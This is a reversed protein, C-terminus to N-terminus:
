QIPSSSSGSLRSWDPNLPSNPIPLNGWSLSRPDRLRWVEAHGDAFSLAYGKSHRSAPADLLGRTGKMDMAFWGDNISKEHEDIFVFASSPAPQTIDSDKTYVRFGDQGALAKGGMWGNISYSRVRPVGDTTSPDSPCRFVKPVPIYTFLKGAKISHANTSDLVGAEFQGYAPNDDMSGRIWSDPNITGNDNFYYNEALSNRNDDAYMKWALTLQRMHNVCDAKQGQAKARSLAPLLLGALIVIIAIIVLLEILSFGFV